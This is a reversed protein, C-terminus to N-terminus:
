ETKKSIFEKKKFLIFNQIAHMIMKDNFSLDIDEAIAKQVQKQSIKKLVSYVLEIIEDADLLFFNKLFYLVWLESDTNLPDDKPFARRMEDFARYVDEIDRQHCTQRVRDALDHVFDQEGETASILRAKTDTSDIKKVLDSISMNDRRALRFLLDLPITQRAYETTPDEYANYKSLSTNLEKSCELKTKGPHRTSKIYQGLKIKFSEFEKLTPDLKKERGGHGLKKRPINKSMM